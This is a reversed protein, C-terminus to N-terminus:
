RIINKVYGDGIKTIYYPQPMKKDVFLIGEEKLQTEEIESLTDIEEIHIGKVHEKSDTLSM